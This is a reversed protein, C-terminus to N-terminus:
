CGLRRVDTRIEDLTRNVFPLPIILNDGQRTGKSLLGNFRDIAQSAFRKYEEKAYRENQTERESLEAEIKSLEAGKKLRKVENSLSVANYILATKTTQLEEKDRVAEHYKKQLFRIAFDKVARDRSFAKYRYGTRLAAEVLIADTSATPMNELQEQSLVGIAAGLQGKGRVWKVLGKGKNTLVYVNEYGKNCMGRSYRCTRPRTGALKLYGGTRLRFLWLSVVKKALGSRQVVLEADFNEKGIEQLIELMQLTNM